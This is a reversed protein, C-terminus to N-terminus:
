RKDQGGRLDDGGYMQTWEGPQQGGSGRQPEPREDDSGFPVAGSPPRSAPPGAPPAQGGPPAFPVAGQPPGYPQPQPVAGAAGGPVAGVAGGPVAGVAGGPVAGVAGGPVAGVAGGPVAGVAGGPVAGVAGGPVAGQPPPLGPGMPAGPAGHRSPRSPARAGRWRSPPLSAVLLAAGLVLLVGYPALVMYARDFERPLVGLTHQASFIPAAMWLLGISAFALGPILSALPSLRSGMVLGLLLAAFLFLGTSILRDSWPPDMFNRTYLGARHTAYMLSLAILPTVVLGIVAGLGHRAGSSM